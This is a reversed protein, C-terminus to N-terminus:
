HNSRAIQIGSDNLEVPVQRRDESRPYTFTLVVRTGEGPESEISLDGGIRAAREHLIKLGFHKDAQAGADREGIGIGDDEVLVRYNNGEGSLMVRVTDAQSHRRINSLTEQVIRLVQIEHSAPLGGQPWEQQLFIQIGSESRFRDVAQQLSPGLGHEDISGRFHSILTRVERNADALTRELRQMQQVGSDADRQQLMEKLVRVQFGISVLTQALSDHLENALNTREEVISLYQAERDLRAKEIAMGLHRGISVFLEELEEVSQLNKQPLYLNYAGLTRDRYQLPVVLMAMEEGAETFFDCGIRARCAEMSRQVLIGTAGAAQVCLCGAAPPVREREVADSTLGVSAVLHMPSDDDEGKLRVAAASAGVVDTLTHLFRSLLDDLERSANISAAVDYLIALSRTKQTIHRTHEVLQEEAERALSEFMEGIFNIDQALESFDSGRQYDIRASLTGGRIKLTWSQLERLPNFLDRRLSRFVLAGILLACITVGTVLNSDLFPILANASLVALLACLVLVFVFLRQTASLARRTSPALRTTEDM